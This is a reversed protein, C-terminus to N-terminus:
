AESAARSWAGNILTLCTCSSWKEFASVPGQRHAESNGWMGIEPHTCVRQDAEPQGRGVGSYSELSRQMSTPTMTSPTSLGLFVQSQLSLQNAAGWGKGSSFIDIDLEPEVELKFCAGPYVSRNM